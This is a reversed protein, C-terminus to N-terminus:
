ALMEKIGQEFAYNPKWNIESKIKEISPYISVMGTSPYPVAGYVIKSNSHIIKKLEEVYDHLSRVDGSGLNYAGDLCHCECLGIIASVADKIYLYDWKQVCETLMCDRNNSMNQILTMILTREFDGAGYVSFIRPEKYSVGDQQCQLKAYEYQKYKYYGYATNPNCSTEETILGSCPGYEAQSGATIIRGCGSNILVKFLEKSSEFNIRQLEEDCRFAGRTGNWAFHVLCDMKGINTPFRSYDEMSIELVKVGFAKQLYVLEPTAKRVIALVDWGKKLAFSVFAKGIFSTAGTVAVRM